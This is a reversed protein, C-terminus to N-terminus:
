PSADRDSTGLAAEPEETPDLPRAAISVGQPVELGGQILLQNM